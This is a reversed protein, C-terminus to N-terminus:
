PNAQFRYEIDAEGATDRFPDYPDLHNFANNVVNWPVSRLTANFSEVARNFITIAAAVNEEINSLQRMLDRMLRASALDPYAEAVANFRSLVNRTRAEVDALSSTDVDDPSLDRLGARLRTVETLLDREYTLYEEVYRELEPIVKTKQRQYAIVDSWARVVQANRAVLQNFLGITIVIMLVAVTAIIWFPTM